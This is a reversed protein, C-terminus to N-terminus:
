KQLAAIRYEYFLRFDRHQKGALFNRYGSMSRGTFRDSLAPRFLDAGIRYHHFSLFDHHHGAGDSPFSSWGDLTNSVAGYPPHFVIDPNHIPRSRHPLTTALVRALFLAFFSAVVTAVIHRHTKASDADNKFWFWWLVASMVGGKFLGTHAALNTAEDFFFSKGAFGNLFAIISTDFSNM